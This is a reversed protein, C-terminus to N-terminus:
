QPRGFVPLVLYKVVGTQPFVSGYMSQIISGNFTAVRNQPITLQFLLFDRSFLSTRGARKWQLWQFFVAIGVKHITGFNTISVFQRRNSHCPGRQEWNGIQNALTLVAKSPHLTLLQFLM